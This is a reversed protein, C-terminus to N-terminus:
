SGSKTDDEAADEGPPEDEVIEADTVDDPPADGTGSGWSGRIGDALGDAVDMARIAWGRLQEGLSKSETTM